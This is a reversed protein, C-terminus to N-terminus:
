IHDLHILAARKAICNKFILWELTVKSFHPNAHLACDEYALRKAEL